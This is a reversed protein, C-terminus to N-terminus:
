ERVEECDRTLGARLIDLHKQVNEDITFIDQSASKGCHKKDWTNCFNFTRTAALFLQDTNWVERGGEYTKNM